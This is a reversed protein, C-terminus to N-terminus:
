LRAGVGPHHSHTPLCVGGALPRSPAQRTVRPPMPTSCRTVRLPKWNLKMRRALLCQKQDLSDRFSRCPTQLRHRSDCLLQGPPRLISSAGTAIFRLFTSPGAAWSAMPGFGLCVVWPLRANQSTYRASGQATLTDTLKFDLARRFRRAYHHESEARNIFNRIARARGWKGANTSNFDGLDDDDV